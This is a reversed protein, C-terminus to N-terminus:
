YEKTPFALKILKEENTDYKKELRSIWEDVYWGHSWVMPGSEFRVDSFDNYQYEKGKSSTFTQNYALDIRSLIDERTMPVILMTFAVDTPDGGMCFPESIGYDFKTGQPFEYIYDKFQKLEM